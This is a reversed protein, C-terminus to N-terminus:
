DHFNFKRLDFKLLTKPQNQIKATRNIKHELKLVKYNIYLLIYCIYFFIYIRIIHVCKWQM